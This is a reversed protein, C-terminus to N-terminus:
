DRGAPLALLTGINGPEEIAQAIMSPEEAFTPGLATVLYPMFAVDVTELGFEIADLKAKLQWFLARAAQEASVGSRGGRPGAFERFHVLMRIGRREQVATGPWAFEYAIVGVEGVKEPERITYRKERVGHKSLVKGADGMTKDVSVSTAAFAKPIM